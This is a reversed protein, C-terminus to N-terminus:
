FLIKKVLFFIFSKNIYFNSNKLRQNNNKKIM